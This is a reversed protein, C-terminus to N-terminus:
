RSKNWYDGLQHLLGLEDTTACNQLFEITEKHLLPCKVERALGPGSCAVIVMQLPQSLFHFLEVANPNKIHTKLKAQPLL